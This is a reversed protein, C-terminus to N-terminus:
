LDLASLGQAILAERKEIRRLQEKTPAAAVGASPSPDTRTPRPHEPAARKTLWTVVWEPPEAEPVADADLALLLLALGHKCPFKHSPCTCKIAMSALEARVQYVASGQCEGWVADDNRGLGRWHRSNALKRGNAASSTDPALAQVQDASYAM